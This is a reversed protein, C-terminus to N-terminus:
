NKRVVPPVFFVEPHAEARAFFLLKPIVSLQHSHTRLSARLRWQDRLEGTHDLLQFRKVPSSFSLKAWSPLTAGSSLVRSHVPITSNSFQTTRKGVSSLVSRGGSCRYRSTNSPSWNLHSEWLRLVCFEGTMTRIRDRPVGTTRKQRM